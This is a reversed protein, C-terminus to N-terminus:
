KVEPMTIKPEEPEPQVNVSSINAGRLALIVQLMIPLRDGVLKVTIPMVFVWLIREIFEYVNDPVLEFDMNGSWLRIGGTIFVASLIILVALLFSANYVRESIRDLKESEQSSM